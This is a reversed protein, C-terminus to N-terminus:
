KKKLVFGAWRALADLTEARITRQGSLWRSLVGVDVGSEEAISRLSQNDLQKKIYRKLTESVSMRRKGLKQGDKVRSKNRTKGFGGSNDVSLAM